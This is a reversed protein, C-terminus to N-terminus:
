KKPLSGAFRIGRDIWARLQRATKCGEPSVYVFGVELEKKTGMKAEAKVPAEEKKAEEKNEGCGFAFVVFLSLVILLAKRM